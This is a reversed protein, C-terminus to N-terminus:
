ISALLVSVLCLPSSAVCWNNHRSRQLCSVRPTQVAPTGTGHALCLTKLGHKDALGHMSLTPSRVQAAFHVPTWGCLDACDAKAGAVLLMDICTSNGAACALHLPTWGCEDATDVSTKQVNLVKCIHQMCESSGVWAAYHLPTRGRVDRAQVLNQLLVPFANVDATPPPQMGCACLATCTCLLRELVQVCLV